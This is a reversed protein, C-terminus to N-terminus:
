YLNELFIDGIEGNWKLYSFGNFAFDLIKRKKKLLGFDNM